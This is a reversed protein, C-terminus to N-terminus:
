PDKAGPIADRKGYDYKLDYYIASFELRKARWWYRRLRCRLEEPKRGSVWNPVKEPHRHMVHEELQYDAPPSEGTFVRDCHDCHATCEEYEDSANESNSM